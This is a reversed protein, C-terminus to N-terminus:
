NWRPISGSKKKAPLLPQLSDAAHESGNSTSQYIDGASLADLRDRLKRITTEFQQADQTDLVPSIDTSNSGSEVPQMAESNSPPNEVIPSEIRNVSRPVLMAAMLVLAATAFFLSTISRKPYRLAFRRFHRALGIRPQQIQALIKTLQERVDAASSFRKAPQKELLRDVLVSLEDSIDIILQWLPRQRHHCIRNLAGMAREARFLPHGTAMFYLVSGLSFLDTRHDTPDGNAQEPSMYHPTGAVVGTQTLSADDVTRALNFDTILVREFGLELLINAPKLDRHV